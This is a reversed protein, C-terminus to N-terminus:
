PQKPRKILTAPVVTVPFPKELTVADDGIADDVTVYQGDVLQLAMISPADPDVVWYSQVGADQDKSRKLFLDKRRTSPYLIEVALV